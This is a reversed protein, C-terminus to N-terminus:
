RKKSIAMGGLVGILLVVGVLLWRRLTEPSM